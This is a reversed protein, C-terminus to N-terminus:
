RDTPNTLATGMECSAAQSIGQQEEGNGMGGEGMSMSARANHKERPTNTLPPLPTIKTLTEAWGTRSPTGILGLGSNLQRRTPKRRM